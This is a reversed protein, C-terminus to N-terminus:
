EDTFTDNKNMANFTYCVGGASIRPFLIKDCNIQKDFLRCFVMTDELKPALSRITALISPESYNDSFSELVDYGIWEDCLQTMVKM